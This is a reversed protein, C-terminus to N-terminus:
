ERATETERNPLSDLLAQGCELGDRIVSEISSYEWRGYRGLLYVGRESFFKKAQGIIEQSAKSFVVYAPSITLAKTCEIEDTTRIWGLRKLDVIVRSILEQAPQERADGRETVEALIGFGEEPAMYPDFETMFALRSFIISEDAYYRWLGPQPHRPGRVGIMVSRVRNFELDKVATKLPRPVDTCITLLHPLPLTAVCAHQYYISSITEPTKIILSRTECDISTVQHSLRLDPVHQTMERTLFEMGRLPAGPKPQPYWGNQNYVAAQTALSTKEASSAQAGRTVEELSPRAINWQFGTPSLTELSRKWVKRHYPFFFIECLTQGFTRILVDKHSDPRTTDQRRSEQRLDSLIQTITKPDLTRLHNQIPYRATGASCEVWAEPPRRVLVEGLLSKLKKETSPDALHLLHVVHDFWYGNLEETKVLGGPQSGGELVCAHPGLAWGAALGAVGGGIILIEHGDM